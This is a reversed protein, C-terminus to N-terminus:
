STTVSIFIRGTEGDDAILVIMGPGATVSLESGAKGPVPRPLSGPRWLAGGDDSVWLGFQTGDGTAALMRSGAVTVARVGSWASPSVAGFSALPRWQGSELRWVGFAPGSMGLATPVGGLVTVRQLEEYAPTAGATGARQWVGGDRSSWGAADRDVRGAPLLGGVVLWGDEVAVADAAWTLGAADSALGPVGEAIAFEAADASSWVAAGSARNGALLFGGPGSTVRSVNVANPGGYLEFPASVERLVGDGSLTWSSVRPNGHAGGPKAGLVAVRGDRCAATFLVNQRGYYSQADVRVPVWVSADGRSRWAAPRTGRDSDRVAGVVLWEGGCEVADRVVPVGAVGDPLSLAAERWDFSVPSPEPVSSPSCASMVLLLAAATAM